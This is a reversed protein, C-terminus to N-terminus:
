IACTAAACGSAMARALGRATNVLATRARVLGARARIVSLDAQAQASRHKVPYLLEPDIRALRALTQADLRDDKKRSEGILRVKRANAVMVAHGLESLLRSIWPSHTGIELAIRCRPMEGFVERLAKANTRVSRELRIQGPEDLVCYWSNRDGLDLGVTLKPQSIKKSPKAAVTSIKKM